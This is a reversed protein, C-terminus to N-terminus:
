EGRGCVDMASVAPKMADPSSVMSSSSPSSIVSSSMSGTGNTPRRAVKRNQIHAVLRNFQRRFRRVVSRVPKTRSHWHCFLRHFPTSCQHHITLASKPSHNLSCGPTGSGPKSISRQERAILRDACFFVIHKRTILIKTQQMGSIGRRGRGTGDEKSRRTPDICVKVSHCSISFPVPM